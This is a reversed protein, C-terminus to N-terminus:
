RSPLLRARGAGENKGSEQGEARREMTPTRDAVEISSFVAPPSDANGEGRRVTLTRGLHIFAPAFFCRTSSSASLSRASGCKDTSSRHSTARDSTAVGSSRHCICSFKRRECPKDPRESRFLNPKANKPQQIAVLRNYLLDKYM